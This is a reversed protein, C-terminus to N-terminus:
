PAWHVFGGEKVANIPAVSPDLGAAAEFAERKDTGFIVLHKEIAADLVRASLTVRPEPQSETEIACVIPADPALASALGKAGPFLSATHMDAGMGLLVLSLPLYAQLEESLDAAADEAGQGEKYFPIFQARAARSQLLHTQILSANSRDSGTPVWREDTLMVTVREWPLDAASLVDFVPAPTTGGPVAFSVTDRNMLHKRLSGSLRDALGMAAMERDAYEIFQM